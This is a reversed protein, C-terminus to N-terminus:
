VNGRGRAKAAARYRPACARCRRGGNPHVYLNDGSYPHGVPCHTVAAHRATVTDGRHLNEVHTVAELHAPSVCRRNRCLHDVDLGSPIPGIFLEHAVRHAGRMRGGSWFYGYAKNLAGEWTWCEDEDGNWVVKSMFRDAELVPDTM